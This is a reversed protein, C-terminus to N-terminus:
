GDGLAGGLAHRWYNQLPARADRVVRLINWPKRNDATTRCADRKTEVPLGTALARKSQARWGLMAPRHCSPTVEFQVLAACVDSPRNITAVTQQSAHPNIACGQASCHVGAQKASGIPAWNGRPPRSPGTARDNWFIGTHNCASRPMLTTRLTADGRPLPGCYRTLDLM